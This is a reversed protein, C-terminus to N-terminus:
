FEGREVGADLVGGDDDHTLVVEGEAGRWRAHPERIKGELNKVVDASHGMMKGIARLARAEHHRFCVVEHADGIISPNLLEPRQTDFM